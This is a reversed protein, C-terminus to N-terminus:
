VCSPPNCQYLMLTSCVFLTECQEEKATFYEHDLVTCGDEESVVLEFSNCVEVCRGRQVGLLAGYVAVCVLIHRSQCTPSYYRHVGVM